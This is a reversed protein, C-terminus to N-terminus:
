FVPGQPEVLTALLQLCYFQLQSCNKYQIKLIDIKALSYPWVYTIEFDIKKSLQFTTAGM